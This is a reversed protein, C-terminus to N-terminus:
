IFSNVPRCLVNLLRKDFHRLKTYLCYMNHNSVRVLSLLANLIKHITVTTSFTNQRTMSSTLNSPTLHTTYGQKNFM